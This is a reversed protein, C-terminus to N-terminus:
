AAILSIRESLAKAIEGIPVAFRIKRGLELAISYPHLTVSPGQALATKKARKRKVPEVHVAPLPKGSPWAEAMMGDYLGLQFSKRDAPRVTPAGEFGQWLEAFSTRVIEALRRLQPLSEPEAEVWLECGRWIGRIGAGNEIAWKIFGALEVEAPTFAELRIATTSPRFVGDFISPGGPEAQTFDFRAELRALKIKAADREGDIGREVLEALKRRM